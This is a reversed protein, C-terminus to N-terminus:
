TNKKFTISLARFFFELWCVFASHELKVGARWHKSSNSACKNAVPAEGSNRTEWNVKRKWLQDIIIPTFLTTLGSDCCM